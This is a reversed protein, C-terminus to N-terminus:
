GQALASTLSAPSTTTACRTAASGTSTSRSCRRCLRAQPLIHYTVCRHSLCLCLCASALFATLAPPASNVSALPLKSLQDGSYGFVLDDTDPGLAATTTNALVLPAGASTAVMPVGDVALGSGTYTFTTATAITAQDCVMGMEGTPLTALCCYLGTQESRLIATDGPQIPIISTPDTPSVAKFQEPTSTGAGTGSYAAGGITANDTRVYSGSASSTQINIPV